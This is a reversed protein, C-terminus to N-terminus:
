QRSELKGYDGDKTSQKLKPKVKNKKQEKGDMEQGLDRIERFFVM